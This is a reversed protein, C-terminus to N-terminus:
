AKRRQVPPEGDAARPSACDGPSASAAGLRFGRSLPAAFVPYHANERCEAQRSKAENFPRPDDACTKGSAGIASLGRAGAGQLCLPAACPWKDMVAFDVRKETEFTSHPEPYCLQAIM